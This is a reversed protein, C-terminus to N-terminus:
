NYTDFSRAMPGICLEILGSTVPTSASQVRRATDAHMSLVSPFRCEHLGSQCEPLPIEPDNPYDDTYYSEDCTLHFTFLSRSLLVYFYDPTM